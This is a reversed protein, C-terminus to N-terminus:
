PLQDAVSRLTKRQSPSLDEQEGKAYCTLLYIRGSQRRLIHILRGGGRTGKGRMAVRLKRVSGTGPMVSGANPEALLRLQVARLDQDSLLRARQTSFEPTEILTYLVPL